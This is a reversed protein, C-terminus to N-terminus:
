AANEERWYFYLLVPMVGALPHWLLGHPQLGSNPDCLPGGTQSLAWFLTAIGISAVALLWVTITLPKGQMFEQQRVCIVIEFTLYAAVLVLILVLSKNEYQWLAGIVTFLIVTLGYGIGFFWDNSWLRHITYFVLFAAYVFMSMEDLVGGWDTLSGHFWM